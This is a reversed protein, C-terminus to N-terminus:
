TSIGRGNAREFAGQSEIPFSKLHPKRFEKMWGLMQPDAILNRVRVMVRPKANRYTRWFELMFLGPFDPEPQEATFICSWFFASGSMRKPSFKKIEEWAKDWITDSLRAGNANLEIKKM